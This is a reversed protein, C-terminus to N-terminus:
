HKTHEYVERPVRAFFDAGYRRKIEPMSVDNYGKAHGTIQEDIEDTGNRRVEIHYRRKLYTKLVPNADEDWIVELALKGHAIDRQADLRGRRYARLSYPFQDREHVIDGRPAADSLSVAAMTVLVSVMYRRAM